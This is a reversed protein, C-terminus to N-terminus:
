CVLPWVDVLDVGKRHRGGAKPARLASETFVGLWAGTVGAGRAHLRPGAQGGERGVGPGSLSQM